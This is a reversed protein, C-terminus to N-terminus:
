FTPPGETGVGELAKLIRDRHAIHQDQTELLLELLAEADAVDHGDRYLEAIRQEQEAIHREGQAIHRETEELHKLYLARHM